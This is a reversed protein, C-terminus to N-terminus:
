KRKVLYVSDPLGETEVYKVHATKDFYFYMRRIISDDAAPHQPDHTPPIMVSSQQSSASIHINSTKQLQATLTYSYDYRILFGDPLDSKSKYNGYTGRVAQETQGKWRNTFQESGTVTVKKYPSCGLLCILLIPVPRKNM